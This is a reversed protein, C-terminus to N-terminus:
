KKDGYINISKKKDEEYSKNMLWNIILIVIVICILGIVIKSILDFSEYDQFFMFTMLGILIVIPISFALITYKNM